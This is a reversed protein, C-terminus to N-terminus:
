DIRVRSIGNMAVTDLWQAGDIRANGGAVTIVFSDGVDFDESGDALTFSLGGFSFAAAVNGQPGFVSGDPATIRFSGANAAESVITLTYDGHPLAGAVTIAGMVGNGVNTDAAEATATRAGPVNTLTGTPTRYVPDGGDVAVIAQAFMTGKVMVGVTNGEKYADENAAPLAVDRVTLGVFKGGVGLAVENDEVGKIVALGFGISPSACIRSVMDSLRTDAIQGQYGRDLTANYNPQISM